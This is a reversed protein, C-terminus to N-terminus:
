NDIAARVRSSKKGIFNLVAREGAPTNLAAELAEAPSSVNINRVTLGAPASGGSKGGNLANRPDNASLVEENKQAIIPVENPALGPFGGTHFRQAGAFVSMPVQRRANRGSSRGVIEGKHAIGIGLFGGLSTGKLANFIAQQIIMQGIRVLFDAAFKQFAIGLSEFIEIGDAVNQAFDDFATALGGMFLDGVKSWAFYAEDAKQAISDTQLTATRLKIIATEAEPGGIAEWMLIAKQIAEDLQTNIEAIQAQAADSQEKDGSALATNLNVQLARRQELLAEVKRTQDEAAQTAADSADKVNKNANELDYLAAAQEAIKHIEEDSIAPNAKRADHIAQEIAAQKELGDNILKQQAIQFDTETISDKTAKANAEAREIAAENERALREDAAAQEKEAAEIAKTAGKELEENKKREAEILAEQFSLEEKSIGLKREAWAIVEERTKGALISANANIQDSDLINEVPTGRPASLLSIAGGPGLFHALYLNADTIAVGAKQLQMANEHLYLEVMKRNLNADERLMLIAADTMGSARDPFYKKFLSLWTSEIFQGLGTASSNPNKAGPDGGSEVGIIRDVLGGGFGGEILLQNQEWIAALGSAKANLAEQAAAARMVAEPLKGAAALADLYYQELKEAKANLDDEEKAAKPLDGILKEVHGNLSEMADAFEKSKGAAEELHSPADKLGLAILAANKAFESSDKNVLVMVAQMETMATETEVIGDAANQWKLVFEDTLDGNERKISELGNKFAQVSLGGRRMASFLDNVRTKTDDSASRLAIFFESSESRNLTFISERVDDLKERLAVMAAAAQTATVGEIVKGWDQVAGATADYANRVKDVMDKHLTLAETARDAEVSWLSIATTVAVFALGFGTTLLLSKIAAGFAYVGASAGAMAGGAVRAETAMLVAYQGAFLLDGALKKLGGSLALVFPLLKIGAFAGMAGVVIQFNQAVFGLVKVLGAFGTSMSQLFAQFDASKIVSTLTRAFDAFADIFGGEGFTLLAQFAANNLQGLAANVGSLSEALGPGFRKTLEDAFPILADSTIQGQEMMKILEKTGIGLGDAMLQIAGPLRDGLQQRLEEMQVAGKSVIQTLATFVGQMEETSSRNVRAAEAVAIFIKKTNEGELNTGKTAISFKSYETALTGFEVGLREANRRIFDLDKATKVESGDNAVNLRAQAAELKTYADVTQNLVNIVGYFGGYAAVLSLVEGRLRQTLSLSQRQAGYLGQYAAILRQILTLQQPPPVPPAAAAIRTGEAVKLFGDYLRGLATRSKTANEVVGKLAADSQAHIAAFAQQTAGLKSADGGAGKLAQRLKGLAATELLVVDKAERSANKAIEFDRAMELTPVGVKDIEAALKNATEALKVFDERAERVKRVQAGIDLRLNGFGKSGFEAMRGSTEALAVQTAELRAKNADLTTNQRALAGNAKEVASGIKNQADAASAAAVKLEAVKEKSKTVEANSAKLAKEATTLATTYKAYSANARDLGDGAARLAVKQDRIGQTAKALMRQKSELTQTNRAQAKDSTALALNLEAIEQTYKQEAAINKSLADFAVKAAKGWKEQRDAAESQAAALKKVAEASKVQEARSDAFKKTAADLKSTIKAVAKEANTFDKEYGKLTQQSDKIEAELKSVGEAAKRSQESLKELPSSSGVSKEFASIATGLQALASRTDGSQVAVEKEAKKFDQLAATISDLVKEAENRAKVVLNVERSNRSAM